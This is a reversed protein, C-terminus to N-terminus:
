LVCKGFAIVGQVMDPHCLISKSKAISSVALLQDHLADQIFLRKFNKHTEPMINLAHQSYLPVIMDHRHTLDTTGVIIKTWANNLYKFDHNSKKTLFIKFDNQGGGVALIPVEEKPLANKVQTLFASGPKLDSCGVNLLSVKLMELMSRLWQEIWNPDKGMGSSLRCMDNLVPKTCYKSLLGQNANLIPTGEWPTALTIIGKVYLMDKYQDFMSYARLGGQSHGVLLIPRNRLRPIKHLLEKFCQTGQEKISLLATRGEAVSTLAIVSAHPFAQMFEKKLTDFSFADAGLGHFLVILPKTNEQHFDTIRDQHLTNCNCGIISLLITIYIVINFQFM